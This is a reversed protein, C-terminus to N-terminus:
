NNLFLQHVSARGIIWEFVLGSSRALRQAACYGKAGFGEKVFMRDCTVFIRDCTVFIRDCTVFIRDCTVFMRDGDCGMAGLMRVDMRENCCVHLSM